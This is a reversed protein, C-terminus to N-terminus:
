QQKIISRAFNKAKELDEANPRGKLSNQHEEAQKKQDPPLRELMVKRTSEPIGINDGMCDFADIIESATKDLERKVIKFGDQYSNM